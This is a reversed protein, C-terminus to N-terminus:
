RIARSDFYKDSEILIGCSLPVFSDDYCLGKTGHRPNSEQRSTFSSRDRSRGPFCVILIYLLTLDSDTCSKQVQWFFAAAWHRNGIYFLTQGFFDDANAVACRSEKQM